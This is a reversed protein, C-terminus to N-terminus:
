DALPQTQSRHREIAFRLAHLLDERSLDGKRLYDQAGERVAQIALEEDDVGSMIVIPMRGVDARVARYTELGTSDPLTLDLLVIDMASERLVQLAAAVSQAHLLHFSPDRSAALYAQVLRVHQPNDEVLLVNISEGNNMRGSAGKIICTGKEELVRVRGADHTEEPLRDGVRV